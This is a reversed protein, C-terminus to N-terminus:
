VSAKALSPLKSHTKGSSIKIINLQVNCQEGPCVIVVAWKTRKKEELCKSFRSTWWLTKSLMGIAELVNMPFLFYM